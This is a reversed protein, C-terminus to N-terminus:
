VSDTDPTTCRLRAAVWEHDDSRLRRPERWRLTEDRPDELVGAADLWAMLAAARGREEAPLLAAIRGRTVGPPTASVVAPDTLLRRAFPELREPPLLGRTPLADARALAPQPVAEGPAQGAVASGLRRALESTTPVM